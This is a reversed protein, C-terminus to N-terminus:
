RLHIQAVKVHVEVALPSTVGLSSAEANMRTDDVRVILVRVLPWGGLSVNVGPFRVPLAVLVTPVLIVIMFVVAMIVLRVPVIAM